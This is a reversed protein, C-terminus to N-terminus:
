RLYYIISTMEVMLNTVPWLKVLPHNSQSYKKNMLTTVYPILSLTMQSRLLQERSLKSTTKRHSPVRKLGYFNESFSGGYSYLYHYQLLSHLLLYM